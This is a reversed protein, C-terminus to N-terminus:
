EYDRFAIGTPFRLAGTDKNIGQYRYTFLKGIYNKKNDFWEKRSDFTGRPRIDHINGCKDKIVMMALGKESGTGEKIDIVIGEDDDFDKHKLINKSRGHIYKTDPIRLISGELGRSVYEIHATMFEDANKVEVYPLVTVNKLNLNKSANLLIAHRDIFKGPGIYDFIYYHIKDNDPHMTLERKFVSTLTNFDWDLNYAEGDLIVNDPLNQFLKNLDQRIKNLYKVEKNGRGTKLFVEGNKILASLRIGDLKPQVLMPWNLKKQDNYKECLMPEKDTDELVEGEPRYGEKRYKDQYKRTAMLYGQEQLDRGSNNLAVDSLATRTKGNVVGSESILNNGDFGIQWFTRNVKGDKLLMPLKWKKTKPIEDSKLLTFSDM